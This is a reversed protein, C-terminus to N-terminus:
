GLFGNNIANELGKPILDNTIIVANKVQGPQNLPGQNGLSVSLRVQSNQVYSVQVFGQDQYTNNVVPLFNSRTQIPQIEAWTEPYLPELIVGLQQSEAYLPSAGYPQYGWKVTPKKTKM